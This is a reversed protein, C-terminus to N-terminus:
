HVYEYLFPTWGNDQLSVYDKFSKVMEITDVANVSKRRGQFSAFQKMRNFNVVTLDKSIRIIKRLFYALQQVFAGGYSANEYQERVYQGIDRYM